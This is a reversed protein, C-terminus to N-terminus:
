ESVTVSNESSSPVPRPLTSLRRIPSARTLRAAITAQPATARTASSQPLTSGTITWAAIAHGSASRIASATASIVGAPMTIPM